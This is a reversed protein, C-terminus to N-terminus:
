LSMRSVSGETNRHPTGLKGTVLSMDPCLSTLFGSPCDANDPNETSSLLPWTSAQEPAVHPRLGLPAGEAGPHWPSAPRPLELTGWPRPHLFGPCPAPPAPLGRALESVGLLSTHAPQAPPLSPTRPCPLNLTRQLAEPHFVRAPTPFHNREPVHPVTCAPSRGHTSLVPCTM